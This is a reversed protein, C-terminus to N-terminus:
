VYEGVAPFELHNLRFRLFRYLSWICHFLSFPLPCTQKLECTSSCLASHLSLSLNEHSQQFKRPPFLCGSLGCPWLTLVFWWIYIYPISFDDAYLVQILESCDCRGPKHVRTSLHQLFSQAFFLAHSFVEVGAPFIMSRGKLLAVLM